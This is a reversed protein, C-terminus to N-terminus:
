RTDMGQSLISKYLTRRANQLSRIKEKSSKMLRQADALDMANQEVRRNYAGLNQTLEQKLVIDPNKEDEPDYTFSRIAEASLQKTLSKGSQPSYTTRDKIKEEVM